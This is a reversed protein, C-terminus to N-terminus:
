HLILHSAVIKQHSLCISSFVQIVVESHCAHVTGFIELHLVPTYAVSIPLDLLLPTKHGTIPTLWEAVLIRIHAKSEVDFGHCAKALLCKKVLPLM